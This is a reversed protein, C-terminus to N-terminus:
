NESYLRAKIARLQDFYVQPDVKLQHKWYQDLLEYLKTSQKFLFNAKRPNEKDISDIPFWLSIAATLALDSTSYTGTSKNNKSIM